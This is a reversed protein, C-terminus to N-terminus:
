ILRNYAYIATGTATATGVTVDRPSGCRADISAPQRKRSVALGEQGPLIRWKGVLNFM